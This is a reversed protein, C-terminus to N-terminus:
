ILILPENGFNKGAAGGYSLWQYPSNGGGPRLGSRDDRRDALQVDDAFFQPFLTGATFLSGLAAGDLYVSPKEEEAIEETRQRLDNITRQFHTILQAARQQRGVVDAM